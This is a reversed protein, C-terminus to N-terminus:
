RLASCGLYRLIKIAADVDSLDPCNHIVTEGGSLLTAALVPLVSNKAGHIRVSGELRTKGEIQLISM